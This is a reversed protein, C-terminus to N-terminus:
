PTRWEAPIHEACLAVRRGGEIFDDYAPEACNPADCMVVVFGEGGCEDCGFRMPNRWCSCPKTYPHVPASGTCLTPPCPEDCQEVRRAQARQRIRDAQRPSV